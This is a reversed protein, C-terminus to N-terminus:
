DANCTMLRIYSTIGPLLICFSPPAAVLSDRFDDLLVLFDTDSHTKDKGCFLSPLRIFLDAAGFSDISTVSLM